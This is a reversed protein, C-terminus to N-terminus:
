RSLTVYEFHLKSKGVYTSKAAKETIVVLLALEQHEKHSDLLNLCGFSIWFVTLLCGGFSM